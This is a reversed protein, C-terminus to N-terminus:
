QAASKEEIFIQSSKFINQRYNKWAHFFENTIKQRNDNTHLKITHDSLIVSNDFRRIQKRYITLYFLKIIINLPKLFINESYTEPEVKKIIFNPFFIKVWSNCIFFQHLKEENKMPTLSIIQHATYFDRLNNIEMQSEDILYNACLEKRVKLLLSLLHIMAYVIYITNTRAIIFLDIDNHNDIGYHATGGSFAISSIFPISNVVKLAKRNKIKNIDQEDKANYSYHTLFVKGEKYFIKNELYLKLLVREFDDKSM